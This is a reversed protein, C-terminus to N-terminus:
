LMELLVWFATSFVLKPYFCYFSRSWCLALGIGLKNARGIRADSRALNVGVAGAGLIRFHASAWWNKEEEPKNADRTSTKRARRGRREPRGSAPVGNTTRGYISLAHARGSRPGGVEGARQEGCAAAAAADMRKRLRSCEQRAVEGRPTVSAAAAQWRGGLPDIQGPPTITGMFFILVYPRCNIIHCCKINKKIYIKLFQQLLLLDKKSGIIKPM